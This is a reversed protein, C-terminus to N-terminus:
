TILTKNTIEEKPLYDFGLLNYKNRIEEIEKIM